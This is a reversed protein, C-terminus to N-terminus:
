EARERGEIGRYVAMAIFYVSIFGFFGLSLTLVTGTTLDIGTRGVVTAIAIVFVVAAFVGSVVYIRTDSESLTM